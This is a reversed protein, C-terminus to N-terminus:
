DGIAWVNPYGTLRMDSDTALRGHDKKVELNRIIPSPATGITCVVTAARLLTRDKLGVGEPTAAAARTNLLFEIGQKQMKKLAFDRLTSSVEPLIQEGSHVLTMSIDNETFNQYFRTSDRILDNLEGALEVGSFGGGIIVFSLHFKRREPDSSSEAKELQSIVHSRLEVADRMTKFPFAHDSM